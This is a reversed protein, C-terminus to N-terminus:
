MSILGFVSGVSSFLIITVFFPCLYKIMFDFVPKRKFPAGNERVEEAIRDIGIVRVILLCTAMAAIPMMVSNTLFDFFDLFQMGIVTVASLPGYGLASLTGLGFMLFGM